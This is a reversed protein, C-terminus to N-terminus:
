ILTAKQQEPNTRLERVFIAPHPANIIVLRELYEPHEAALIWAVAGGWDHGVLVLKKHASGALFQDALGKVDGALYPMAYQEVGEPKSSLNYGRMDLAVAQHDKGFERLQDKWAYWFEPFGHLFLMLRGEGRTVYHLRVANVEAFRHEWM